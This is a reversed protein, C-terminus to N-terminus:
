QAKLLVYEQPILAPGRFILLVKYWPAKIFVQLKLTQTMIAESFCNAKKRWCDSGSKVQSLWLNAKIM